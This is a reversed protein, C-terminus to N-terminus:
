AGAGFIINAYECIGGLKQNQMQNADVNPMLLSNNRKRMQITYLSRTTVTVKFHFWRVLIDFCELM